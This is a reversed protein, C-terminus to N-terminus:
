IVKVCHGEKNRTPEQSVPDVKILEIGSQLSRTLLGRSGVAGIGFDNTNVNLMSAPGETAAYFECIKPINFREQFPKWVDM